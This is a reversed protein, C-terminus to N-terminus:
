KSKSPLNSARFKIQLPSRTGCTQHYESPRRIMVRTATVPEIGYPNVVLNNKWTNGIDQLQNVIKFALPCRRFYTPVGNLCTIFSGLISTESSRM